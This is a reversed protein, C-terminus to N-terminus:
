QGRRNHLEYMELLEKTAKFRMDVDSSALMPTIHEIVHNQILLKSLSSLSKQIALSQTLIDMCYADDDIMKQLGSLQGQTIKLRHVARNHTSEIM